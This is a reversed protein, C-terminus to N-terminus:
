HPTGLSSGQQFQQTSTKADATIQAWEDPTHCVRNVFRTGTDGESRCVLQPASKASPPAQPPSPGTAPAGSVAQAFLLAIAAFVPLGM